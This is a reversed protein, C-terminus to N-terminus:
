SPRGSAARSALSEVRNDCAERLETARLAGLATMVVQDGARRILGLSGLRREARAVVERHLDLSSALQEASFPVVADEGDQGYLLALLSAKALYYVELGNLGDAQLHALSLVRDPTMEEGADDLDCAIRLLGEMVAPTERAAGALHALFEDDFGDSKELAFSRDVGLRCIDTEAYPELSLAVDFRDILTDGLERTSDTAVVLPTTRGDDFLGIVELSSRHDRLHAGIEELLLVHGNRWADIVAAKLASPGAHPSVWVVDRELERALVLAISRCGAGHMRAQLLVSLPGGGRASHARAALRLREVVFDQGLVDDWEVPGHRRDLDMTAVVRVPPAADIADDPKQEGAAASSISAVIRDAQRDQGHRFFAYGTGFSLADEFASDNDHFADM